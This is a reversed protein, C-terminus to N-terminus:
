ALVMQLTHPGGLGVTAVRWCMLVGSFKMETTGLQKDGCAATMPQCGLILSDGVSPLQGDAM